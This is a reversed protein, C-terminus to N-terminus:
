GFVNFKKIIAKRLPTCYTSIFYLVAKWNLTGRAFFFRAMTIDGMVYHYRAYSAFWRKMTRIDGDAQLLGLYFDRRRYDPDLSLNQGDVYRYVCPAIEHCQRSETVKLLWIIFNFLMPTGDDAMIITSKFKPDIVPKKKAKKINKRWYREILRSIREYSGTGLLM